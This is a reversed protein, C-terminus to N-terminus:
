KEGDIKSPDAARTNNGKEEEVGKNGKRLEGRVFGQVLCSYTNIIIWIYLIFAFTIVFITLFFEM